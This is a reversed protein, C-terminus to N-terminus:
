LLPLCSVLVPRASTSLAAATRWRRGSVAPVAAPVTSRILSNMWECILVRCFTHVHERHVIWCSEYCILSSFLFSATQKNKNTNTGVIIQGSPFKYIMSAQGPMCTRLTQLKFPMSGLNWGLRDWADNQFKWCAAPGFSQNLEDAAHVTPIHPVFLLGPRMKHRVYM